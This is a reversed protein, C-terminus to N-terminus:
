EPAALEEPRNFNRLSQADCEVQTMGMQAYWRDPKREGQAMAQQLDAALSRHLLVVVPQLRGAEAAVAIRTQAALAADLLRAVLDEPLFPGDCPVFMVWDDSAANLGTLMGMLPGHFGTQQDEIVKFGLAAYASLNRNANILLTQTQPQLRNIVHQILPQGDFDVWGKDQGGMRRGEGGALIVGTVGPNATSYAALSSM